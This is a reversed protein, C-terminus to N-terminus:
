FNLIVKNAIVLSGRFMGIELAYIEREREVVCYYSINSFLKIMKQRRKEGSGLEPLRIIISPAFIRPCRCRGGGRKANIGRRCQEM